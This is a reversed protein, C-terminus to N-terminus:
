KASGYAFRYADDVAEKFAALQPKRIYLYRTGAALFAFNSEKVVLALEGDKRCLLLSVRTRTIGKRREEIIGYDKIVEGLFAAKELWKFPNMQEEIRLRRDIFHNDGTALRHALARAKGSFHVDTKHFIM